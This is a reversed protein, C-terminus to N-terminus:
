TRCPRTPRLAAMAAAHHRQDSQRDALPHIRHLDAFVTEKVLDTHLASVGNVKHAMIFALEGM